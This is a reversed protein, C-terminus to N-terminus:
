YGENQTLNNNKDIEEQPVPWKERFSQLANM